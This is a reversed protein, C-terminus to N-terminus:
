LMHPDFANEIHQLQFPPQLGVLSIVDFRVHRHWNFLRTYSNAAAMLYQMKRRDVAEFPQGYLASRRTKVEVFVLIGDKEAVIDIEKGSFSKWNCHRVMYGSDELYQAAFAEGQLGLENHSAM